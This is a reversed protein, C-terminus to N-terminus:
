SAIDLYVNTHAHTEIVKTNVHERTALDYKKVIELSSNATDIKYSGDAFVIKYTKM